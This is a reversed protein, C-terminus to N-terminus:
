TAVGAVSRGRNPEQLGARHRVEGVAGRRDCPPWDGGHVTAPGGAGGSTSGTTGRTNDKRCGDVEDRKEDQAAVDGPRLKGAARGGHDVDLDPALDGCYALLLGVLGLLLGLLALRDLGRGVGLRGRYFGRRRRWVGRRRVHGVLHRRRRDLRRGDDFHGVAGLGRAPEEVCSGRGRVAGGDCAPASGRGRLVSDVGRLHSSRLWAGSPWQVSPSGWSLSAGLRVPRATRAKRARLWVCRASPGNRGVTARPM